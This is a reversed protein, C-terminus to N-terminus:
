ESGGAELKAAYNQLLYLLDRPAAQLVSLLARPGEQLTALLQAQLEEKSAKEIPELGSGPSNQASVM